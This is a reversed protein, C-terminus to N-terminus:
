GGEKLAQFARLHSESMGSRNRSLYSSVGNAISREEKDSATTKPARGHRQVFEKLNVYAKCTPEDADEIETHAAPVPDPSAIAATREEQEEPEPEIVRAKRDCWSFESRKSEGIRSVNEMGLAAIAQVAEAPTMHPKLVAIVDSLWERDLPDSFFEVKLHPPQGDALRWWSLTISVDTDHPDPGEGIFIMEDAFSMQRGLRESNVSFVLQEASTAKYGAKARQQDIQTTM